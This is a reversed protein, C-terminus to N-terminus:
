KRNGINFNLSIRYNRGPMPYFAIQEYNRDFINNVSLSARLGHKAWKNSYSVELDNVIYGPLYESNDAATYRLGTFGTFWRITYNIISYRIESNAKHVPVYILQKGQTADNDSNKELNVVRNFSYAMNVSFLSLGSKIEIKADFEAGLSNVGELNVPSWIGYEGPMWKIMNWLRSNYVTLEGSAKPGISNEGRKEISIESNFGTENKIGPNGGPSWYLDNLTPITLSAGINGKLYLYSRGPLMYDIGISPLPAYLRNRTINVESLVIIGLREENSFSYESRLIAHNVSKFGGHNVSNITSYRDSVSVLLDSKTSLGIKGSGSLFYSTGRTESDIGALRNIYELYDYLIAARFDLLVPLSYNRLGATLRLQQDSQHEGNNDGAIIPGPLEREASSYWYKGSFINKGKKLFYEQSLGKMLYSNNQRTLTLPLAQNVDDIYSFNNRARRTFANTILQWSGSGTVFSIDDSIFGFSGVGQNLSLTSGKKWDPVTNISISGGPGGAGSGTPSAGHYIEINGSFSVPVISFDVQGSAPSNLPIGAWFVKTHSPGMGRFSSTALGGSGWNKVTLSTSRELLDSLSYGKFRLLREGPISTVKYGSEGSIKRGIVSVSGLDLTDSNVFYLQAKVEINLIIFFLVGCWIYRKLRM